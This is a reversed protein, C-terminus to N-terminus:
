DLSNQEWRWSFSARLLPAATRYFLDFCGLEKKTQWKLCFQLFDEDTTVSSDGLIQSATFIKKQINKKM